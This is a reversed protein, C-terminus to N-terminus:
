FNYDVDLWTVIPGINAIWNKEDVHALPKAGPIHTTRGGRDVCPTYQDDYNNSPFCQLDTVGNNM